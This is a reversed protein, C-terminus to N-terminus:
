YLVVLLLPEKSVNMEKRLWQKEHMLISIIDNLLMKQTKKSKPQLAETLFLSKGHKDKQEGIFSVSSCTVQLPPSAATRQRPRARTSTVCAQLLSAVLWCLSVCRKKLLRDLWLYVPVGLLVNRCIWQGSKVASTTFLGCFADSSPLGKGFFSPLHSSSSSSSKDKWYPPELRAIPSMLQVDSGCPLRQLTWSFDQWFFFCLKDDKWPSFAM